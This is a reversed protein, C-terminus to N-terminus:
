SNHRRPWLIINASRFFSRVALFIVGIGWLIFLAGRLPRPIFQLTIYYVFDPFPQVRYLHTLMYAIGLSLGVAGLVFFTLWRVMDRLQARTRRLRSQLGQALPSTVKITPLVEADAYFLEPPIPPAPTRTHGLQRTIEEEVAIYRVATTLDLAIPLDKHEPLDGLIEGITRACLIIMPRAGAAYAATVDRASDGLVYCEDPKLGFQSAVLWLAAPYEGWCKCAKQGGHACSILADVRGGAAEIQKVLVDLGMNEHGDGARTSSDASSVGLIFVLTDETAALSRMAELTAPALRWTEPASHPAIHSDRLVSDRHVFVGKM